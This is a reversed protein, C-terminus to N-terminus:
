QSNYYNFVKVEQIKKKPYNNSFLEPFDIIYWGKLMNYNM